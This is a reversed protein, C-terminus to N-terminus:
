SRASGTLPLAQFTCGWIVQCTYHMGCWLRWTSKDQQLSEYSLLWEALSSKCTHRAIWFCWASSKRGIATSFYKQRLLAHELNISCAWADRLDWFCPNLAKGWLCCFPLCVVQQHCFMRWLCSSPRRQASRSGREFSMSLNDWRSTPLCLIDACLGFSLDIRLVTNGAEINPEM